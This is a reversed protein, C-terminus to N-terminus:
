TQAMQASKASKQAIVLTAGRSVPECAAPKLISSSDKSVKVSATVEWSLTKKACTAHAEVPASFAPSDAIRALM